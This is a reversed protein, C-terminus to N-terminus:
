VIRYHFSNGSRDIFIEYKGGKKLAAMEKTLKGAVIGVAAVIEIWKYIKLLIISM